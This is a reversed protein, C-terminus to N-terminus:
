RRPATSGRTRPDPIEEAIRYHTAPSFLSKKDVKNLVKPIAADRATPAISAEVRTRMTIGWM